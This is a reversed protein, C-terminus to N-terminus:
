RPRGRGRAPDGSCRQRELRALQSRESGHSVTRLARQTFRLHDRRLQMLDQHAAAPIRGLYDEGGPNASWDNFPFDAGGQFLGPEGGIIPTYELGASDAAAVYGDIFQQDPVASQLSLYARAYQTYGSTDTAFLAPDISGVLEFFAASDAIPPADPFNIVVYNAPFAFSSPDDADLLFASGQSFVFGLSNTLVEIDAFSAANPGADIVTYGYTPNTAGAFGGATVAFSTNLENITSIAGSWSLVDIVDEIVGCELARRAFAARADLSADRLAATDIVAPNPVPEVAGFTNASASGWGLSLICLGILITRM